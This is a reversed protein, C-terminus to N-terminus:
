DRGGDYVEGSEVGDSATLILPVLSGGAGDGESNIEIGSESGSGAGAAVVRWFGTEIELGM